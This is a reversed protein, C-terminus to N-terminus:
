GNGKPGLKGIRPDAKPEKKSGDFFSGAAVGKQKSSRYGRTSESLVAFNERQGADSSDYNQTFDARVGMQGGVAYSDQNAGMYAFNWGEKEKREILARVTHLTYEKSANEQGDTIILVLVQDKWSHSQCWSEVEHVTKGIADHLATSGRPVYSTADLDPVNELREGVFNVEYENDFQVLSMLASEGDHDQRQTAVFQNFGAITAERCSEM